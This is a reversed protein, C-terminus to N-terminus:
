HGPGPRHHCQLQCQDQHDARARSGTIVYLLDFDRTVHASVIRDLPVANRKKRGGLDQPKMQLIRAIKADAIEEPDVGPFLQDKLRAMVPIQHRLASIVVPTWCGDLAAGAVAALSRERPWRWIFPAAATGSLFVLGALLLLVVVIPTLWWVRYDRLFDYIERM